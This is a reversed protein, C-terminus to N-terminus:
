PASAGRSVTPIGRLRAEDGADTTGPSSEPEEHDGVERLINGTNRAPTRSRVPFRRFRCRDVAKPPPHDSAASRQPPSTPIPELMPCRRLPEM